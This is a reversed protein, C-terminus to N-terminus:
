RLPGHEGRLHELISQDGAPMSKTYGANGFGNFGNTGTTPVSRGNPMREGRGHEVLSDTVISKTAPIAVKGGREEGRQELLGPEQLSQTTTVSPAVAKPANLVAVAGWALAVALAAVAIGAVFGEFLKRQGAAIQGQSIMNMEMVEAQASMLSHSPLVM